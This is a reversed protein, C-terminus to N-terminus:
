ARALSDLILRWRAERRESTSAGHCADHDKPREIHDVDSVYIKEPLCSPQGLFWMQNDKDLSYDDALM